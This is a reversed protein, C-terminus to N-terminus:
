KLQIAEIKLNLLNCLARCDTELHYIYIYIYINAYMLLIQEHILAYKYTYGMHLINVIKM